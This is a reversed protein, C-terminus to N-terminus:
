KADIKKHKKGFILKCLIVVMAIDGILPLLFVAGVATTIVAAILTIGVIILITVLIAIFTITIM